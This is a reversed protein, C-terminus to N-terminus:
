IRHLNRCDIQKSNHKIDFDLSGIKNGRGKQVSHFNGKILAHFNNSM